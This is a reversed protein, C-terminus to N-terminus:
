IRIANAMSKAILRGQSDLIRGSTAFTRRGAHDVEGIVTLQQEFDMIAKIFKTNLDIMTYREQNDLLTLVSCGMAADLLAALVGGHLSGILNMHQEKPTYSLQVQGPEIHTFGYGLNKDMGGRKGDEAFLKLREIGSMESYQTNLNTDRM